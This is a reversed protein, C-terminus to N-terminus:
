SWGQEVNSCRGTQSHPAHFMSHAAPVAVFSSTYAAVFLLVFALNRKENATWSVCCKRLGSAKTDDRKKATSEDANDPFLFEKGAVALFRLIDGRVYGNSGFKRRALDKWNTMSEKGRNLADM